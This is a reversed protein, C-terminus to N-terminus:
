TARPAVCVVRFGLDENNDNRSVNLRYASRCNKPKYNWAGGRMVKIKTGLLRASGDNPAGIYNNHWDDQCWEMVNGHIDYLGFSNPMFQGVSTTESFNRNYNALQDTITEGFHYKTTTGARCAYEWEAESPLRYGLRTKRSLRECFEVADDWSVQEVPLNNGKFYSLEPNLDKDVKPLSAVERWQAQTVPYKGMFFPQLTVEHQPKEKNYGEGEPSGMMFTGGPIAVMELKVGNNLYETFDQFRNTLVEVEKVSESVKEGLETNKDLNQDQAFSGYKYSIAQQLKNFGDAKWYDLWHLDRLAVGYDERRLDPIECNDFRVPIIYISDSPLEAAQSLAIKFEKQVYGQKSISHKSLCAIFLQSKKIVRPIESRWNQGPILDKKDLWPKYGAEKLRDYLEFVVEKDEHAHALFIQIGSKKLM